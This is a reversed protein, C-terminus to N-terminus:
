AGVVEKRKAVEVVQVNLWGAKRALDACVEASSKVFYPSPRVPKGHRNAIWHERRFPQRQAEPRGQQIKYHEQEAAEVAGPPVGVVKWGKHYEDPQSSQRLPKRKAEAKLSENIAHQAIPVGFPNVYDTDVTRM